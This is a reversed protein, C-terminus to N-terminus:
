KNNKEDEVKSFHLDKLVKEFCETHLDKPEEYNLCKYNGNEMKVFATYYINNTQITFEKLKDVNAEDIENFIEIGMFTKCRDLEKNPKQNKEDENDNNFYANSSEVISIKYAHRNEILLYSYGYVRITKKYGLKNLVEEFDSLDTKYEIEKYKIMKAKGFSKISAFQILVTILIFTVILSVLCVKNLVDNTCQVAFILGVAIVFLVGVIIWLTRAKINKM